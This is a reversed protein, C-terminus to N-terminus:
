AASKAKLLEPLSGVFARLSVVFGHAAPSREIRKSFLRQQPRGL